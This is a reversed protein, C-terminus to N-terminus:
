GLKNNNTFWAYTCPPATRADQGSRPMAVGADEGAAGEGPTTAGREAGWWVQRVGVQLLDLVSLTEDNLNIFLCAVNIIRCVNTYLVDSYAYTQTCAVIYFLLLIDTLM